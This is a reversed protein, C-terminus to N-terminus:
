QIHVLIMDCLQKSAVANEDSNFSVIQRYFTYSMPIAALIDAVTKQFGIKLAQFEVTVM